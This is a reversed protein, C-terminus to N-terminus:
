AHSGVLFAVIHQELAAHVVLAHQGVIATVEMVRQDCELVWLKSNYM